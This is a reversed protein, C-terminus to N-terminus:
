LHKHNKIKIEKCHQKLNELYKGDPYLSEYVDVWHIKPEKNCKEILESCSKYIYEELQLEPNRINASIFYRLAKKYNGMSFHAKGMQKECIAAEEPYREELLEYARLASEYLQSSLLYAALMFSEEQEGKAYRKLFEKESRYNVPFRYEESVRELTGGEKMVSADETKANGLFGSLINWKGLFSM